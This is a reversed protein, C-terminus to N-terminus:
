RWQGVAELRRKLDDRDLGLEMAKKAHTLASEYVKANAYLMGINYHTFANDGAEVAAFEIQRIADPMRNGKVLFDAYLLRTIADAPQFRVAREFYCEASMKFGRPTPTKERVWIKTVTALARHHNPFVRLTYDLDGGPLETTMGKTGLEVSTTFHASEVLYLKSAYPQSDGPVPKYHSPRYDFPGFANKLDGCISPTGQQAICPSLWVCAAVMLAAKRKGFGYTSTNM